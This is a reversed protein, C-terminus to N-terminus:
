KQQLQQEYIYIYIDVRWLRYLHMGNKSKKGRKGKTASTASIPASSASAEEDEKKNKQGRKSTTAPASAPAASSAAQLRAVLEAKTGKSELGKSTCEERLAAVQWYSSFYPFPFKPPTFIPDFISSFSKIVM